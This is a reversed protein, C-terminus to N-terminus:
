SLYYYKLFRDLIYAGFLLCAGGFVTWFINVKNWELEEREHRERPNESM